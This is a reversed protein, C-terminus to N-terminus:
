KTEVVDEQVRLMPAEWRGIMLCARLVVLDRAMGLSDWALSIKSGDVEHWQIPTEAVPIKFPRPTSTSPQALLDPCRTPDSAAIPVIELLCLSV